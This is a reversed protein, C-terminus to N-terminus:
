TNGNACDVDLLGEEDLQRELGRFCIQNVKLSTTFDVQLWLYMGWSASNYYANEDGIRGDIVTQPRYAPENEWSPSGTAVWGMPTVSESFM